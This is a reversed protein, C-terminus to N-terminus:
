CSISISTSTDSVLFASAEHAIRREPTGPLMRYLKGNRYLAQSAALNRGIQVLPQAIETDTGDLMGLDRGLIIESITNGAARMTWPFADIITGKEQFRTLGSTLELFRPDFTSPESM